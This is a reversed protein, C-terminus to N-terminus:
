DLYRRILLAETRLTSAYGATGAAEVQTAVTEREAIEDLLIARVREADLLLRPTEALGPEGWHATRGDTLPPAEKNDIAAILTRLVAVEASRKAVLALKLDARLRDKMM